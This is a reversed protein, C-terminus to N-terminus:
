MKQMIRYNPNLQKLKNRLDELENRKISKSSKKDLEIIVKGDEKEKVTYEFNKVINSIERLTPNKYKSYHIQLQQFMKKALEVCGKNKDPHVTRSQKLFDKYDKTFKLEHNEAPCDKLKEKKPEPKSKKFNNEILKVKENYPIKKRMIKKDEENGYEKVHSRLEQIDSTNFQRSFDRYDFYLDNNINVSPTRYIENYLSIEKQPIKDLEEQAKETKSNKITQGPFKGGPGGEAKLKLQFIKLYFENKSSFSYNELNNDKINKKINEYELKLEIEKEKLSLTKNEKLEMEKEKLAQKLDRYYNLVDPVQSLEAKLKNYESDTLLGKKPEEKSDLKNMESKNNNKYKIIENKLKKKDKKPEEKNVMEDKAEYKSIAKDLKTLLGISLYQVVDEDDETIEEYLDENPNKLFDEVIKKMIKINKKQNEKVKDESARALKKKLEDVDFKLELIKKNTKQLADLGKKSTNFRTNTKYKVLQKLEKELNILKIEDKSYELKDKKPEEKKPAPKAKAAEKKQEAKKEEKLQKNYKEEEIKEDEVNMIQEAEDYSLKEKDQLVYLFTTLNLNGYKKIIDKVIEDIKKQSITFSPKINNSEKKLLKEIQNNVEKIISEHELKGMKKNKLKENLIKKYKEMDKLNNTNPIFEKKLPKFNKDKNVIIGPILKEIKSPKKPEAKKSEKPKVTVVGTKTKIIKPIMPQRKPKPKIVEAQQAKKAPKKKATLKQLKEKAEKLKVKDQLLEKKQNMNQLLLYKFKDPRDNMIKIIEAKRLKSYGKINQKSIEKKLDAVKMKQLIDILKM